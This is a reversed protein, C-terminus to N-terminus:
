PNCERLTGIKEKTKEKKVFRYETSRAAECSTSQNRIANLYTIQLKKVGGYNSARLFTIITNFAAKSTVGETM